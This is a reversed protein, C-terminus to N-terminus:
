QIFFLTLKLLRCQRLFFSPLGAVKTKQCCGFKWVQIRKKGEWITDPFVIIMFVIQLELQVKRPGLVECYEHLADQFILFKREGRGLESAHSLSGHLALSEVLCLQSLHLIIKQLWFHTIIYPVLKIHLTSFLNQVCVYFLKQERMCSALMNCNNNLAGMGHILCFLCFRRVNM